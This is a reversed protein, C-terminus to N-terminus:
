ERFNLDAWSGKGWYILRATEMRNALRIFPRSLERRLKNLRNPKIQKKRALTASRGANIASIEADGSLFYETEHAAQQVCIAPMLQWPTLRHQKRYKPNFLYLDVPAPLTKTADFLRQACHRSIIYGATSIAASHIRVLSRSRGPGDRQDTILMKGESTDLKILDCDPDVWSLDSLCDAADIALKIDDEFVAVHRQNGDAIRKWAKRHSLFCGIEGKSM